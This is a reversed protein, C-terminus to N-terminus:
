GKTYFNMMILVFMFMIFVEAFLKSTFETGKKKAILIYTAILIVAVIILTGTM